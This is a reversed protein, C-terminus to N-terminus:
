CSKTTGCIGKNAISLRANITKIVKILEKLEDKQYDSHSKFEELYRRKLADKAKRRESNEKSGLKMVLDTERGMVASLVRQPLLGEICDKGAPALGLALFDSGEKLGLRGLANKVEGEADLDYTVFVRDFKRLM